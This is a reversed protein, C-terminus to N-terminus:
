SKIIFVSIQVLINGTLRAADNIDTDTELVCTANSLSYLMSFSQGTGMCGIMQTLVQADPKLLGVTAAVGSSVGIIGLTNGVITFVYM